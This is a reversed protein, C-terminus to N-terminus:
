NDRGRRDIWGYTNISYTGTTANGTVRIQNSTNTRINYAGAVAAPPVALMVVDGGSTPATIDPCSFYLAAGGSGVNNRASFLANVNIGSPVSLAKLVSSNTTAISAFDVVAVDWLFEDGNQIFLTWQASGNTKMSGIRRFLTYAAPINGGTTPATPSLSTCVDVVGTDPRKMLFVHYWTNNGIIGSDYSGAAAGLSWAATTKTLASALTMFDTYSSDSAVGAAVTFSTSAASTSMGLGQLVSGRLTSLADVKKLYRLDGAPAIDAQTFGGPPRDQLTAGM